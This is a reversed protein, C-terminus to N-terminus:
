DLYTSKTQYLHKYKKTISHLVNKSKEHILKTDNTSM